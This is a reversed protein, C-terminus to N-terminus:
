VESDDTKIIEIDDISKLIARKAYPKKLKPNNLKIKYGYNAEVMYGNSIQRYTFNDM